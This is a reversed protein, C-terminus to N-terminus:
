YLLIARRYWFLGSPRVLKGLSCELNKPYGIQCPCSIRSAARTKRDAARWKGRSGRKLCLEGFDEGLTVVEEEAGDISVM